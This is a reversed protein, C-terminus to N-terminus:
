LHVLRSSPLLPVSLQGHRNTSTIKLSRAGTREDSLLTGTADQHLLVFTIIGSM